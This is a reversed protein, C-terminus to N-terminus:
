VAKREIWLPLSYLCVNKGRGNGGVKRGLNVVLGRTILNALYTGEPLQACVLSNSPTKWPMGIADAIERRTMPGRDWLANLMQVQRHLLDTPWGSRIAFDRHSRIRLDAMSRLGARRLQRRTKQAILNRQRESFKNSGLKLKERRESVLHRDTPRFGRHLKSWAAAIETDSHGTAHKERIFAEFEPGHPAIRKTLGIKKRVFYVQSVRLGLIAAIQPM